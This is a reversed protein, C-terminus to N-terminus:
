FVYTVSASVIHLHTRYKGNASTAPNVVGDQSNDDIANNKNRSRVQQYDYALGFLFNKYRYDAGVCYMSSGNDPVSPDFTKDPIPGSEYIYGALLGLSSTVEYRGGVNFSYIDKWDKPIVIESNGAVPQSTKIRLEDFSSWGEWRGGIEVTLPKFGKYAIGINAQAPLTISTRASTNPFLPGVLEQVGSPFSHKVEGDIDIDFSSRYALGVSIDKSLDVLMGLNFGVATDNGELKQAIDPLGLASLNLMKNLEANLFLIDIGAALYVDPIIQYSVVPNVTYTTLESKTAIYKGEWTDGWDTSLGFDSFVGLGASLRDNFKHTIFLTSPFFKDDEMEFKRGTANSRFQTSPSILTTGIEIQTKDLKNILAPNFFVSSPDDTHAVVSNAQGLSTAGQTNITFGAGYANPNSPVLTFICALGLLLRILKRM